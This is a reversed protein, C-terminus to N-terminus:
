SYRTNTPIRYFSQIESLRTMSTVKAGSVRNGDPFFASRCCPCQQDPNRCRQALWMLICTEHFTSGTCHCSSSVIVPDGRHFEALCIPCEVFQESGVFNSCNNDSKRRLPLQWWCCRWRQREPGQFTTKYELLRQRIREKRPSLKQVISTGSMYAHQKRFRQMRPHTCLAYLYALLPVAVVVLTAVMTRIMTTQEQYVANQRWLSAQAQKDILLSTATRTFFKGVASADDRWHSSGQEISHYIGM